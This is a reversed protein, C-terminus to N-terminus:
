LSPAHPDSHLLGFSLPEQVLPQGHAARRRQVEFASRSRQRDLEGAADLVPSRDLPCADIGEDDV